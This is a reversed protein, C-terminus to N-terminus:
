ARVALRLSDGPQAPSSTGGGYAEFQQTFDQFDCEVYIM